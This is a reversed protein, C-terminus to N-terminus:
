LRSPSTEDPQELLRDITTSFMHALHKWVKVSGDTTGAEIGKYHRLTVGLLRAVDNQTLSRAKRENILNARM